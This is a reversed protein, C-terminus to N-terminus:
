MNYSVTLLVSIGEEQHGDKERWLTPTYNKRNFLNRINLNAKFNSFLKAINLDTRWYTDLAEANPNNAAPAEDWGIYIRNNLYFSIEPKKMYYEIGAIFSLEPFAEYNVDTILTADAPDQTDLATSTVYGLGVNFTFPDMGFILQSEFGYSQNKGENVYMNGIPTTKMVIGDQWDVYFGTLNLKYKDKKRMYILEFCDMTESNLDSSGGGVLSGAIEGTGPARFARSYILKITDHTSPNAILGCRPTIQTGVDDYDDYRTGLLLHYRHKFRWRIQGLLSDINRVKGHYSADQDFLVTGSSVDTLKQHSKANKNRETACSVLWQFNFNNTEQKVTLKAARREGEDDHVIDTTSFYNWKGQFDAYWNYSELEISRTNGLDYSMFGKIMWFETETGSNDHGSETASFDGRSNAFVGLGQWEESQWLSSYLGIVIDLKQTPNARCKLTASGSTYERNDVGPHTPAIPEWKINQAGQTSASTGFSIRFKDKRFGKSAKMDSSYYDNSAFGANVSFHDKESIFTKYSIVGHFADSGYIVSGPGKIMEIKDIIGLEPNPQQYLSTGYVLTSTPVGDILIGIGRVSNLNSYGRIAIAFSGGVTHYSMVSLENALAEHTRRAGMKTWQDPTIVAVSSGAALEDEIFLSVIKVDYELLEALSLEFLNIKEKSHVVPIHAVCLTFLFSLGAYMICGNRINKM